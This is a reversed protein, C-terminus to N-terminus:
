SDKDDLFCEPFIDVRSETTFLGELNFTNKLINQYDIIVTRTKDIDIHDSIM